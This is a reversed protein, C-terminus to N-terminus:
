RTRLAGDPTYKAVFADSQGASRLVAAGGNPDFNVDTGFFRGALLVDGWPDVLVSSALSSQGPGSTQGGFSQAWALRGDPTYKALLADTGGPQRRGMLTQGDPGEGLPLDSSSWGAVYANGAADAAVRMGGDLDPGGIGNAWRLEGDPGFSAM